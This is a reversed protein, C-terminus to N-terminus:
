SHKILHGLTEIERKLFRKLHNEDETYQDKLVKIATLSGTNTDRGLYVVSTGGKGLTQLLKYSKFIKGIM